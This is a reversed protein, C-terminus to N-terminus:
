NFRFFYLKKILTLCSRIKKLKLGFNSMRNNASKQTKVLKQMIHDYFQEASSFLVIKHDCRAFVLLFLYICLFWCVIRHWTKAKNFLIHLQRMNMLSYLYGRNNTKHHQSNISTKTSRTSYLSAQRGGGNSKSTTQTGDVLFSIPGDSDRVWNTFSSM